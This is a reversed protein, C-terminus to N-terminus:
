SDDEEKKERDELWEIFHNVQLSYDNNTRWQYGGKVAQEHIYDDYEKLLQLLQKTM